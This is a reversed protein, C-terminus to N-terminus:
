GEMAHWALEAGCRPCKEKKEYFECVGPQNKCDHEYPERQMQQTGPSGFNAQGQVQQAQQTQGQNQPPARGSGQPQQPQNQSNGGEFYESPDRGQQNNNQNQQPQQPEPESGAQGGQRYKEHAQDQKRRLHQGLYKGSWSCDDIPCPLEGEPM